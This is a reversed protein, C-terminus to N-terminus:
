IDKKTYKAPIRFSPKVPINFEIKSYNMDIKMSNENYRSSIVLNKPFNFGNM